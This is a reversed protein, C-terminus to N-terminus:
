AFQCTITFKDADEPASLLQVASFGSNQKLMAAFQERDGGDCFIFLQEATYEFGTLQSQTQEAVDLLLFFQRVDWHPSVEMNNVAEGMADIYRMLLKSSRPEALLQAVRNREASPTLRELLISSAVSERMQYAHHALISGVLLVLILLIVATALQWRRSTPNILLTTREVLRQKKGTKTM